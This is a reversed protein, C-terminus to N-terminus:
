AAVRQSEAVLACWAYATPVSVGFKEMIANTVAVNGPFNKGTQKVSESVPIVVTSAAVVEAQEAEVKARRSKAADLDDQIRKAKEEKEARERNIKDNCNAQDRQMTLAIERAKAIEEAEIKAKAKAEEEVRIKEREAEIKAVQQANFEDRRRLAIATFSEFNNNMVLYQLDTLLFKENIFNANVWSMKERVDKAAADAKIKSNALLTNVADHWASILRKGKLSAAFEPADLNLRIPNIELELADIHEAYAMRAQTIIALKQAEKKETVDKELKLATVRLDEHWADIMRTAEGITTAQALVAEKVLVLKKCTERYLKAAAEANSYDQDTILVLSRTNALSLKLSEGFAEMNHATIEGKAQVFLAPLDTIADAIPKEAIQVPVYNELDVAFQAWGARIRDFWESDPYVRMSVDNEPTGDSVSFILVKAGTVMLIQYCQPAHEEPLAGNSVLELIRKNPQKNEWATAEDMTLGDCSCSYIGDSCTVPFLSEGIQAAILKRATIEVEHGYDLINKQVWDSYEKAIGTSKAHLLETRTVTKSLGLMAAAESAGFHELRFQHWADSGQLLEEHIIM